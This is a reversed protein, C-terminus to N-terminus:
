DKGLDGLALKRVQRTEMFQKLASESIKYGVPGGIDLAPLEKKRIWSRVAKPTVGLLESVERTSYWGQEFEASM